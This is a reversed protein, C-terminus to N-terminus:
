VKRPTPGFTSRTLAMYVHNIMTTFDYVPLGVAKQVAAAYPPLNSCELLISRIRNDAALMRETQQVVEAQVKAPDIHGSEAFIAEQFNPKNELGFITIRNIDGGARQLHEVTLNGADATLVGIRDHPRLTREIFPLQLLSSAFVPIPFERALEQQFLIMFGCTSTLAKIGEKVLEWGAKIFPEILSPDRDNILRKLTAGHVKRCLVPFPFTAPNGVDGPIRKIRADMMLIGIVAQKSERPPQYTEKLM